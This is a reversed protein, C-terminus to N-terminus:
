IVKRIPNNRPAANTPAVSAADPDIPASREGGLSVGSVLIDTTGSGV